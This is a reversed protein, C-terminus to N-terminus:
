DEQKKTILKVLDKNMISFLANEVDKSSLVFQVGEKESSNIVIKAESSTLPKLEVQKDLSKKLLFAEMGKVTEAPIKVEKNGSIDGIVATLLEKLYQEQTFITDCEKGFVSKLNQLVAIKTAEVMDRSAQAISIQANKELQDAKSKAQEILSSKRAEAESIITEAQQRAQEIIRQKEEEGANIGQEKLKFVIGELNERDNKM